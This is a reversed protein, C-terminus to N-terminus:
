GEEAHITISDGHCLEWPVGSERTVADALAHLDLMGDADSNIVISDLEGGQGMLRVLLKITM